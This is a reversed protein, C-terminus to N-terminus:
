AETNPPSILTAVRPAEAGTRRLTHTQKLKIELLTRRGMRRKVIRIELWSSRCAVNILTHKVQIREPINESKNYAGVCVAKTKQEQNRGYTKYEGTRLGPAGWPVKCQVLMAKIQCEVSTHSKKSVMVRGM